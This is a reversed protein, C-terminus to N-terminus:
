YVNIIIENLEDVIYDYMSSAIHDLNEHYVNGLLESMFTGEFGGIFNEGNEITYEDKDTEITVSDCYNTNVDSIFEEKSMGKQKEM